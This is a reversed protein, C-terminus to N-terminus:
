TGRVSWDVLENKKKKRKKKKLSLSFSLTFVLNKPSTVVASIHVKRVGGLTGSYDDVHSHANLSLFLFFCAYVKRIHSQM